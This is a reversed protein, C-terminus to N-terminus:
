KPQINNYNLLKHKNIHLELYQTIMYNIAIVVSLFRYFM